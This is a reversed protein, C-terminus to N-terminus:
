YIDECGFATFGRDHLSPWEGYDECSYRMSLYTGFNRGDKRFVKEIPTAAGNAERPNQAEPRDCDRKYAGAFDLGFDAEDIAIFYGGKSVNCKTRNEPDRTDPIPGIVPEAWQQFGLELDRM